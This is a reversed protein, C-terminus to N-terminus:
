YGHEAYRNDGGTVSQNDYAGDNQFDSFLTILLDSANMFRVDTGGKEDTWIKVFVVPVGFNDSFYGWEALAGYETNEVGGSNWTLEAADTVAGLRINNASVYGAPIVSDDGSEDSVNCYEVSSDNSDSYLHEVFSKDITSSNQYDFRGDYPYDSYVMIDPTSLHSFDIEVAGNSRQLVNVFLEPFGPVTWDTEELDIYYYGWISTESDSLTLSGGQKWLGEVHGKEQTDFVAATGIEPTIKDETVEEFGSGVSVVGTMASDNCDENIDSFFYFYGSEELTAFFSEGGTLEGSEWIGDGVCHIGSSTSHPHDGYNTWRVTDGENINVASPIFYNDYIGIDVTDGSTSSDKNRVLAYKIDRKEIDYYSIHINDSSDVAISPNMGTNGSPDTFGGTNDLLEFVWSGSRNTAYRLEGDAFIDAEVEYTAAVIRRYYAIHLNGESDAAMSADLGTSGNNDITFSSWSGNANTIYKLDANSKDYYGIHVNDLSDILISTDYGTDGCRDLVESVWVGSANSAYKLDEKEETGDYYSIHVRNSSDVAISSFWGTYGESDVTDTEWLGSANTAYKLDGEDSNHYSIHVNDNTDVTISPHWGTFGEGDIVIIEWFGNRNTAYKLDGIGQTADYYAIHLSDGSDVAMSPYWGTDGENDITYTMWRGSLNTRYQLAQNVTDYYVIHVYDNSDVVIASYLGIDVNDDTTVDTTDDGDDGGGGGGGSCSIMSFLTFFFLFVALSLFIKKSKKAGSPFLPICCKMM